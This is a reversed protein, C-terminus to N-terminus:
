GMIERGGSASLRECVMTVGGLTCNHCSTGKGFTTAQDPVGCSGIPGAGATGADSIERRAGCISRETMAGGGSTCEAVCCDKCAGSGATMAGGGATSAPELRGKPSRLIPCVETIAGAGCSESLSCRAIGPRLEAAKLGREGWTMAGGGESAADPREREPPPM